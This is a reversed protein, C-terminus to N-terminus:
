LMSIRMRNKLEEMDPNPAGCHSPLVPLAHSPALERIRKECILRYNELYKL